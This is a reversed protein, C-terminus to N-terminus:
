YVSILGDRTLAGIGKGVVVLLTRKATAKTGTSTIQLIGGVAPQKGTKIITYSFNGGAFNGTGTLPASFDKTNAIISKAQEVGADAIMLAEARLKNNAAIKEDVQILQSKIIVYGTVLLLFILAIVLVAGRQKHHLQNPFENMINGRM